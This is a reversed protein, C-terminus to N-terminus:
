EDGIGMVKRVQRENIGNNFCIESIIKDTVNKHEKIEAITNEILTSIERQSRVYNDISEYGPADGLKLFIKKVHYFNLRQCQPGLNYGREDNVEIVAATIARSIERISFGNFIKHIEQKSSVRPIPKLQNAQSM